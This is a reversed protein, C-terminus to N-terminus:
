VFDECQRRPERTTKHRSHVTARPLAPLIRDAAEILEIKIDKEPDIRDLGYAILQRTTYHLEAALEAGTAGAGIIAVHLQEPRLQTSQAHGRIFANM